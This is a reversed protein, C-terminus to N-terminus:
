EKALLMLVWSPPVCREPKLPASVRVRFAYAVAAPCIFSAASPTCPSSVRSPSVATMLTFTGFGWNSPWVLPLSPLESTFPITSLRTFSFSPAKRSSFGETAFRMTSFTSSAERARSAARLARSRVRLFPASSPAPRGPLSASHWSRSGPFHSSYRTSPSEAPPDALCPRSRAKWAMRGRRPLIRFTSFARRSFVSAESSIRLMM